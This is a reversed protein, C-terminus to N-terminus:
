GRSTRGELQPRPWTTLLTVVTLQGLHCSNVSVMEMCRSVTDKSFAKIFKNFMPQDMVKLQSQQASMTFIPQFVFVCLVTVIQFEKQADQTRLVINFRTNDM